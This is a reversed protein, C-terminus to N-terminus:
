VRAGTTNRESTFYGDAGPPRRREIGILPTSTFESTGSREQFFKSIVRKIDRFNRTEEGAFYQVVKKPGNCILAPAPLFRSKLIIFYACNIACLVRVRSVFIRGLLLGTYM